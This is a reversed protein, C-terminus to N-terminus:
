GELDKKAQQWLSEQEQLDMQSLVKGQQEALKEMREYRVMFRESSRNLAKEPDVKLFRALNVVAALVDGLEEEIGEGTGIAEDLEGLEESIKERAGHWDNWDFGDKHAKKQIKEARWLAPMGAAIDRMSQSTSTQEKEQRKVEEWTTLVEESTDLHMQGFVHPHRRILKKCAGDCVDEFTFGGEEEEIQTHFLIQMQLDGLEERLNDRDGTDIATATEYAEELLDRRISQHTQERDWPCGNEGRLIAMIARFDDLNYHEKFEFNVM